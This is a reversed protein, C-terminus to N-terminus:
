EELEAEVPIDQIIQMPESDCKQVDTIAPRTSETEPKPKSKRKQRKEGEYKRWEIKYKEKDDDTAKKDMMTKSDLHIRIHVRKMKDNYYFYVDGKPDNGKNYIEEEANAM